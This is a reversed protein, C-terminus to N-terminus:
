GIRGPDIPPTQSVLSGIILPASAGLNVAVLPSLAMDSLLYVWVLVGGSLVMAGTIVWYFWTELFAPLNDAEHRLKFLGLVEALFGGLAGFLFGDLETM